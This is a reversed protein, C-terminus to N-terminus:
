STLNSEVEAPHQKWKQQKAADVIKMLVGAADQKKTASVPQHVADVSQKIKALVNSGDQPTTYSQGEYNPAKPGPEASAAGPSTDGGAAITPNGPAGPATYASGTMGVMGDPGASKGGFGTVAGGGAATKEGAALKGLEDHFGRALFRGLTVYDEAVKQQELDQAIKEVEEIETDSLTSAVQAYIDGESGQASATKEADDEGPLLQALIEDMTAM